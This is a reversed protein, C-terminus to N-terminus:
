RYQYSGVTRQGKLIAAGYKVPIAFVADRTAHEFAVIGIVQGQYDFVPGGSVGPGPSSISLQYVDPAILKTGEIESKM